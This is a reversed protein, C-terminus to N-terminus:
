ASPTSPKDDGSDTAAWNKLKTVQRQVPPLDIIAVGVLVLSLLMAVWGRKTWGASFLVLSLCFAAVALAGYMVADVRTVTEKSTQENVTLRKYLKAAGAVILAAVVLVVLGTM